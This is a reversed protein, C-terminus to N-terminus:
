FLKEFGVPKERKKAIEECLRKSAAKFEEATATKCLILYDEKLVLSVEERLDLKERYVAPITLRGKKDIKAREM